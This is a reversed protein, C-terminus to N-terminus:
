LETQGVQGDMGGAACPAHSSVVVVLEILNGVHDCISMALLGSISWSCRHAVDVNSGV